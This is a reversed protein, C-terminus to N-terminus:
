RRVSGQYQLRLVCPVSYRWPPDFFSTLSGPVSFLLSPSLPPTFFVAKSRCLPSLTFFFISIVNFLVALYISSLFSPRIQLLTSAHLGNNAALTLLLLLLLLLLLRLHHAGPHAPPPQRPASALSPPPASAAATCSSPRRASSGRARFSGSVGHRRLVGVVGQQLLDGM